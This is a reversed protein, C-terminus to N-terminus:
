NAGQSYNLITPIYFMQIPVIQINYLISYDIKGTSTEFDTIEIVNIKNKTRKLTIGSTIFYISCAANM